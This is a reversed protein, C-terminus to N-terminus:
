AEPSGGREALEHRGVGKVVVPLKPAAAVEEAARDAGNADKGTVAPDRSRETAGGREPEEREWAREVLCDQEEDPEDEREEVALPEGLRPAGSRGLLVTSSPGLSSPDDM